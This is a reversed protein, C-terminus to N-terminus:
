ALVMLELSKKLWGDQLEDKSCFSLFTDGDAATSLKQRKMEKKSMVRLIIGVSVTGVRNM